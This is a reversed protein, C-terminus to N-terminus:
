PAAQAPQTSSPKSKQMKRKAIGAIAFSNPTRSLEVASDTVRVSRTRSAPPSAAPQSPSRWPRRRGRMREIRQNAAQSPATAKAGVNPQTSASLVSKPKPM